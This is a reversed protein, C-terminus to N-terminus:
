LSTVAKFLRNVKIMIFSSVTLGKYTKDIM